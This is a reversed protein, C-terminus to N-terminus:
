VFDEGFLRAVPDNGDNGGGVDMEKRYIEYFLRAAGTVEGLSALPNGVKKRVVDFIDPLARYAVVGLPVNPNEVVVVSCEEFDGNYSAVESRLMKQSVGLQKAVDRARAGEAAMMEVAKKVMEPTMASGNDKLVKSDKLGKLDKSDKLDKLGKSKAVKGGKAM